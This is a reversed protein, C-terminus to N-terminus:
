KDKLDRYVFMAFISFIPWVIVNALAFYVIFCVKAATGFESLDTQGFEAKTYFVSMIISVMLYLVMWVM